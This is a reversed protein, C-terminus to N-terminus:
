ERQADRLSAACHVTRQAWQKEFAHLRSAQISILLKTREVADESCCPHDRNNTKAVYILTGRRARCGDCARGAQWKGTSVLV